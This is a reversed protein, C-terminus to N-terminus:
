SEERNSTRDIIKRKDEATLSAKSTEYEAQFEAKRKGDRVFTAVEVLTAFLLLRPVYETLWNSQNESDLMRPLQYYIVEFPHPLAPTPGVLWHERDYDAYFRPLGTSAPNPYVSRIFELSRPNMFRVTNYGPGWAYSWSVTERWRDPKAIVANTAEMAATAVERTGQIKLEEAIRREAVNICRPLQQAVKTDAAQGRDLYGRIDEILSTYTLGTAM